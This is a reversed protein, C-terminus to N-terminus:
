KSCKEIVKGGLAANWQQMVYLMEDPTQEKKPETDESKILYNDLKIPGRKIDENIAVTKFATIICLNVKELSESKARDIYANFM